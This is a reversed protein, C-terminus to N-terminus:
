AADLLERPALLGRARPGWLGLCSTGATVDRVQVSGDDPVHRELWDLDLNGNAGVQFRDQALRAIEVSEPSTYTDPDLQAPRGEVSDIRDLYEATHVRALQERTAPSPERVEGGRARWREAAALMDLAKEVQARTAAPKYAPLPEYTGEVFVEPRRRRLHLLLLVRDAVRDQVDLLAAVARPLRRQLRHQVVDGALLVERRGVVQPVQHPVRRPGVLRDGQQTLGSHLDTLMGRHKTELADALRGSVEALRESLERVERGQGAGRALVLGCWALTLTATMLHRRNM